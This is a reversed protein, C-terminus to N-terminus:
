ISIVNYLLLFHCITLHVDGGVEPRGNSLKDFVTNFISEVFIYIRM